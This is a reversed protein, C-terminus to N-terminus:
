APRVGPRSDVEPPQGWHERTNWLRHGVTAPPRGEPSTRADSAPVHPPPNKRPLRTFRQSARTPPSVRFRSCLSDLRPSRKEDGRM